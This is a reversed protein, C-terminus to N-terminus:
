PWMFQSRIGDAAIVPLDHGIRQLPDAHGFEALALDALKDPPCFFRTNRARASACSAPTMKSSSGNVPTSTFVSVAIM